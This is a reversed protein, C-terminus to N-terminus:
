RIPTSFLDTTSGPTRLVLEINRLNNSVCDRVAEVGDPFSKAREPDHTWGDDGYYRRTRRCRLVRLATQSVTQRELVVASYTMVPM